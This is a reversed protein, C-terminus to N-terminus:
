AAPIHLSPYPCALEQMPEYVPNVVQHGLYCRWGLTGVDFLFQVPNMCIPCVPVTNRYQVRQHWFSHNIMETSNM